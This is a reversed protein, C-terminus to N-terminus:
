YSILVGNFLGVLGGLVLCLVIAVPISMGEQLRMALFIGVFGVVSGVSLDIGGTLIVLSAGIAVVANVSAQNIINMVNNLTLFQKGMAMCIITFVVFICVMGIYIIWDSINIKREKKM